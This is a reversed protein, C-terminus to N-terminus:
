VKFECVVPFHDSPWISKESTTDYFIRQSRAPDSLLIWDIRSGTDLEGSFPHHSSSEAETWPDHLSLEKLLHNRVESKPHDNFDGLLMIFENKERIKNIEQSLVQAQKFRISSDTHDLHTNVILLNENQHKLKAWVCLRPFSSGFAVSGPVQPTDSLWIDSSKKLEFRESDIFLCPYMREHIWDRHHDILSLKPLLSALDNIQPFRGEQTAIIGPNYSNLVSALLRRRNSWNHDGDAPNDFRINSTIIHFSADM